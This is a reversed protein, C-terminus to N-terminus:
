LAAALALSYTALAQMTSRDHFAQSLSGDSDISVVALPQARNAPVQEQWDAPAPFIPLCIASNLTRRLLAFEYKTMNKLIGARWIAAFDIYSPAKELYALPAGGLLHSFVLRDDADGDMNFSNEVRFSQTRDLPKILSVRVNHVNPTGPLARLLTMAKQHYDSLLQARRAPLLDM